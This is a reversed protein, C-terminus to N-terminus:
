DHKAEKRNHLQHSGTVLLDYTASQAKSLQVPLTIPIARQSTVDPMHLVMRDTATSNQYDHQIGDIDIEVPIGPNYLNAIFCSYKQWYVLCNDADKTIAPLLKENYYDVSKQYGEPHTEKLGQLQERCLIRPDRVPNGQLIDELISDAVKNM